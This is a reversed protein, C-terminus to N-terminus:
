TEKTRNHRKKTYEKKYKIHIMNKDWISCTPNLALDYSINKEEAPIASSDGINIPIISIHVCIKLSLINQLFFTLHTKM